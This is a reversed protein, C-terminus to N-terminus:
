PGHRQRSNNTVPKLAEFCPATSRITLSWHKVCCKGASLDGLHGRRATAEEEEAKLILSRSETQEAKHVSEKSEAEDM